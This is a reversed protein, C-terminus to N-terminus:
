REREVTADIATHPPLVACRIMINHTTVYDFTFWDPTVVEWRHRDGDFGVYTCQVPEDHGDDTIIRVDTPPVPRRMARLENWNTRLVWWQFGVLGGCVIAWPRADLALSVATVCTVIFAVGVVAVGVRYLTRRKM